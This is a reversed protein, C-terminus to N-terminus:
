LFFIISVIGISFIILIDRWNCNSSVISIGYVLFSFGITSLMISIRDIKPKSCPIVNKLYIM